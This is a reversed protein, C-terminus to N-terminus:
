EGICEVVEVARFDRLRSCRCEVAEAELDDNGIGVGATTARIERFSENRIRPALREIREVKEAVVDLFAQGHDAELWAADEGEAVFEQCQKGVIRSRLLQRTLRHHELLEDRFHREFAFEVVHFPGGLLPVHKKMTVAM